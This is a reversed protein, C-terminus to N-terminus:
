LDYKIQDYLESSYKPFDSDPCLHLRITQINIIARVKGPYPLERQRLIKLYCTFIERVDPSNNDNDRFYQITQWVPNNYKGSKARTKVEQNHEKFSQISTDDYGVNLVIPTEEVVIPSEDCIISENGDTESVNSESADQEHFLYGGISIIDTPNYPKVNLM